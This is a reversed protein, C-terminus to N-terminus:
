RYLDRALSTLEGLKRHVKRGNLRLWSSKLAIFSVESPQFGAAKFIETIPKCAAAQAIEIDSPM